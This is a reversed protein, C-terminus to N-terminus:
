KGATTSCAPKLRVQDSVGFVPKRMVLSMCTYRFCGQKPAVYVISFLIIQEWAFLSLNLLKM